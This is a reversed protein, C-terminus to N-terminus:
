ERSYTGVLAYMVTSHGQMAKMLGEKGTNEPLDLKTNLPYIKFFYRHTGSPPCPGTYGQQLRGNLGEVGPASNEEIKGTLPINWMVWHVFDGSPADPDDMILALSETGEPINKIALEPNINEGDCTFKVPIASMQEFAPSTVELDNDLSETVVPEEACGFVLVSVIFLAIIWRM